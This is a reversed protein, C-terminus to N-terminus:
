DLHTKHTDTEIVSQASGLWHIGYYGYYAQKGLSLFLLEALQSLWNGQRLNEQRDDRAGVMVGLVVPM